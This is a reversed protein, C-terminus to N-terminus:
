EYDIWIPNTMALYYKKTKLLVLCFSPKSSNLVISKSNLDLFDTRVKDSSGYFLVLSKVEGFREEVTFEYKIEFEDNVANITQGIHYESGYHLISFSVFPGNSVIIRNAKIGSVPDNKAHYFATFYDGFTQQKRCMLRVFPLRIQKMYQFNGHADNGALIFFKYGKQLLEIYSNIYKIVLHYPQGNIIQLYKSPLAKLDEEEWNGRNLILRQFFPAKDFPHAAIFVIDPDEKLETLKMDPQYDFLKEGSDGKGYYFRDNNAVLLHINQNKHNGVSLEEGHITKMCADTLSKCEAKLKHWKSLLPDTETYNDETDDLDYSHDTVFFWDLDCSIACKKTASLPAGFEVQDNTYISHYHPDGPHWNKTFLREKESIYTKYIHRKQGFYNDNTYCKGNISFQINTFIYHNLFKHNLEIPIEASFFKQSIDKIDDLKIDLLADESNITIYIDTITVPYKDADKVFLFVPLTLGVKPVSVLTPCDFIVEPEKKYYLSFFYKYRFHTEAYLFPYFM